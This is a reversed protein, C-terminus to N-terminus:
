TQLFHSFEKPFTPFFTQGTPLRLKTKSGKERGEWLFKGMEKWGLAAMAFNTQFICLFVQYEMKHNSAMGRERLFRNNIFLYGWWMGTPQLSRSGSDCDVLYHSEVEYNLNEWTNRYKANCQLLTNCAIHLITRKFNSNWTGCWIRYVVKAM